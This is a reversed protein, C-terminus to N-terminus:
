LTALVQRMAGIKGNGLYGRSWIEVLEDLFVAQTELRM